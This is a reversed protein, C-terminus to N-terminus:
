RKQSYTVNVTTEGSSTGVIVNLTRQDAANEATVMGGDAIITDVTLKMGLERIKDHYFTLVKSTGDSTSFTFNGGANESSDGSVSFTGQPKSGPYAPVWSPLKDAAGGLEMTATQGNADEATITLRGQKAQDFNWTVVKGSKRDRVTVTGARDDQGVVELDKNGLAAMRAMAAAPNRQMMAPDLGAERVKHAVFLALGGAALGFLVFLGLLIVLVWVIPSTKRKVPAAGPAPQPMPPPAPVAQGTAAGLPTGCKTCFAGTVSAGCMSCFAM